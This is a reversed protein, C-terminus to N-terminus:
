GLGLSFIVRAAWWALCLKLCSVKVGDGFQESADVADHEQEQEKKEEMMKKPEQVVIREEELAELLKLTACPKGGENCDDECKKTFRYQVQSRRQDLKTKLQWIAPVNLEHQGQELSSLSGSPPDRNNKLVDYAILNHSEIDSRYILPSSCRNAPNIYYTPPSIKKSETGSLGKTVKPRWM